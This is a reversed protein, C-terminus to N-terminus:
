SNPYPTWVEEINWLISGATPVYINEWRNKVGVYGYGSLIYLLPLEEGLIAQIEHMNAIRKQTDLTSEQELFLQDIRAEWETAPEPQEPYWQHYKGSSLYLGKSGGPDYGASTSSWSLFTVDYAFTADTRALLTVFDVKALKITIGIAKMNEVFTVAISDVETVGDVALLEFEVPVGERDILGGEANWRFGAERLIVRAQEPDYDYTPVDPNHWEGQSSPILSNLPEGKGFLVADIVGRRNFATQVAQRFRKDSFWRFKHAPVYPEGKENSGPHQNFWFFNM